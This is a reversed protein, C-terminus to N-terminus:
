KKKLCDMRDGASRESGSQAIGSSQASETLLPKAQDYEM